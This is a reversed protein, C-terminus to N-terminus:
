TASRINILTMGIMEYTKRFFLFVEHTNKRISVHQQSLIFDGGRGRLALWKGGGADGGELGTSL